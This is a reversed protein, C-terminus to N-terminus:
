SGGKLKWITALTSRLYTRGHMPGRKVKHWSMELRFHDGMEAELQALDFLVSGVGIEADVVGRAGYDNEPLPPCSAYYEDDSGALSVLLVGDSRLV